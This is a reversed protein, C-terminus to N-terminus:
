YEEDEEDEDGEEDEDEGEEYLGEAYTREVLSMAISLQALAAAKQPDAAGGSSERLQIYAQTLDQLREEHTVEVEDNM